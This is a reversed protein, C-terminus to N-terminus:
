ALYGRINKIDRDYFKKWNPNHRIDIAQPFDIIWPQDNWWLINYESLDGHVVGNDLFMQINGEIEALVRVKTDDDLNVDVLRPAPKEENGLYQMLIADDSHSFVKPLRAGQDSLKKLLYYERRVWLKQQFSKGVKTKQKMAKRLSPSNFWQGETYDDHTSLKVRPNYIKLACYEGGASVRLVDAEKGSKIKSVM